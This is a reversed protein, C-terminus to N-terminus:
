QSKADIIDILLRGIKSIDDVYLVKVPRPPWPRYSEDKQNISGNINM